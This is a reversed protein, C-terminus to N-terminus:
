RQDSRMEVMAAARSILLRRSSALRSVMSKLGGYRFGLEIPGNDSMLIVPNTPPRRFLGAKRAAM